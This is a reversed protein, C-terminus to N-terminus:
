GLDRGTFNFKQSGGRNGAANPSTAGDDRAYSGGKARDRKELRDFIIGKWNAAMCEDILRAVVEAGYKDANNRVQTTLAQLGQPKYAEKRESKYKLWRDFADQLMPESSFPPLPSYPCEDEVEKENEVENEKENEKERRTQKANAKTKSGTQKAKAKTKGGNKGSESKRKSADLTPKVLIFIGEAVDTMPRIEEDLGYALVAELASLRDDKKKLRKVAEWISRYVTMQERM